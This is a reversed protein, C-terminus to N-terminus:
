DREGINSSSCVCAETVSKENPKESVKVDTLQDELSIFGAAQKGGQARKLKLMVCCDDTTHGKRNCFYCLKRNGTKGTMSNGADSEPKQKPAQKDLYGPKKCPDYPKKSFMTQSGHAELFQDALEAMLNINDPKREKLFLALERHAANIFHERLLLDKLGQFSKDAGAFEVWRIM